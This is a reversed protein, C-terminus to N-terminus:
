SPLMHVIVFLFFSYFISLYYKRWTCFLTFFLIFIIWTSKNAGHEAFLHYVHTLNGIPIKLLIRERTLFLRQQSDFAISTFSLSFFFLLLPADLDQAPFLNQKRYTNENEVSLMKWDLHAIRIQKGTKRFFFLGLKFSNAMRRWPLYIYPSSFWFLFDVFSFSLFLKKKKKIILANLYLFIFSLPSHTWWFFFFIRKFNSFNENEFKRMFIGTANM